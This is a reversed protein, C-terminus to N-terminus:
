KYGLRNLINLARTRLKNEFESETLIGKELNCKGCTVQLNSVSTQGGKSEPIVHDLHIENKLLDIDCYVCRLGDREIVIRRMNTPIREKSMINNIIHNLHQLFVVSKTSLLDM